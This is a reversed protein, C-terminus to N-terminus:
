TCKTVLFKIKQKTNDDITNVIHYAPNLITHSYDHYRKFAMYYGVDNDYCYVKVFLKEYTVFVDQYDFHAYQEETNTVINTPTVHINKRETSYLTDYEGDPFINDNNINYRFTDNVDANIRFKKIGIINDNTDIVVYYSYAGIERVLQCYYLPNNQRQLEVVYFDDINGFTLDATCLCKNYDFYFM